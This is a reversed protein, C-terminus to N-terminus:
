LSQYTGQPKAVIDIVAAGEECLETSISDYIKTLTQTSPARFFHKNDTAIESLFAENLETGLGITFLEIGKGKLNTATDRAYTEPEPDPATALGDTLLVVARRADENQRESELELLALRLAEGTNTSGQESEPKIELNGILTGVEARNETLKSVTEADSAFTVLGTQDGKNLKLVFDRAAKLVSTIPQPPDGGDNNM